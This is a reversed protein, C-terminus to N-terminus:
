ATLPPNTVPAAGPPTLHRLIRAPTGVVVCDSPIDHTVVSGAGIVVRDGITVGCLVIAGAGMWVDNGIVIPKAIEWGAARQEADIPHGVTILQANPGAQFRAGITIPAEDLMTVNFNLFASGQFRIHYGYSCYFPNEAEIASADQQLLEELLQRRKYQDAKSCANFRELRDRAQARRFNLEADEALYHNGSIMRDYQLNM